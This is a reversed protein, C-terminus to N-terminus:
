PAPAAAPAADTQASPAPAPAEAPAAPAAAPAEAATQPATQPEALPAAAPSEAAPATPAPAAAPASPLTETEKAVFDINGVVEDKGMKSFMLKNNEIYLKGVPYSKPQGKEDLVTVTANQKGPKGEDLRFAAPDSNAAVSRMVGLIENYKTVKRDSFYCLGEYGALGVAAAAAVVVSSTGALASGIAGHASGAATTASAGSGAATGTTAAAGTGAATSAGMMSGGTVASTLAYAGVAKVQEAAASATAAVVKSPRYDCPGALAGQGAVACLAATMTLKTWM